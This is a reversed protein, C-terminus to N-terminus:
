IIIWTNAAFILQRQDRRAAAQSNVTAYNVEPNIRDASQDTVAAIAGCDLDTERRRQGSRRHHFQQNFRQM